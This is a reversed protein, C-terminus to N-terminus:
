SAGRQDMQKRSQTSCSLDCGNKSKGLHRLVFVQHHQAFPTVDLARSQRVECVDTGTPYKGHLLVLSIAKTPYLDTSLSVADQQGRALAFHLMECNILVLETRHTSHCTPDTGHLKRISIAQLGHAHDRLSIPRRVVDPCQKNGLLAVALPHEYGLETHLVASAHTYKSCLETRLVAQYGHMYQVLAALTHHQTATMAIKISCVHGANRNLAAACTADTQHFQVTTIM